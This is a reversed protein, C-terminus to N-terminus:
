ATFCAIFATATVRVMISVNVPRVSQAKILKTMRSAM